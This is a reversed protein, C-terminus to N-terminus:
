TTRALSHSEIETSILRGGGADIDLRADQRLVSWRNNKELVGEMDAIFDSRFSYIQIKEFEHVDGARIQEVLALPNKYTYVQVRDAAKSAKHLRRASPNGIDIWLDISGHAGPAQLAPADPDALGGSSFQLNPEFSLAYALARSLLYAANESPHLATRFSLDEYVGRDLDSLALHFQYLM